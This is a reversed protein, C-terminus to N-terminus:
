RSFVPLCVIRELEFACGISLRPRLAEPRVCEHLTTAPNGLVPGTWSIGESKASLAFDAVM